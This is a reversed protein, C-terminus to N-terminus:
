AATVVRVWAHAYALATPLQDDTLDTLRTLHLQSKLTARCKAWDRRGKFLPRVEMVLRDYPTLLRLDNPNGGLRRVQERLARNEAQLRALTTYVWFGEKRTKSLETHEPYFSALSSYSEPGQKPAQKLESTRAQGRPGKAM